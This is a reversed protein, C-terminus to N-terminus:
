IPQSSGSERCDTQPQMQHRGQYRVIPGNSPQYPVWDHHEQTAGRLWQGGQPYVTVSTCTICWLTVLRIGRLNLIFRYQYRGAQMCHIPSVRCLLNRSSSMCIFPLKTAWVMDRPILNVKELIVDCKTWTGLRLWLTVLRMVVGVAIVNWACLVPLSCFSYILVANSYETLSTYEDTCASM